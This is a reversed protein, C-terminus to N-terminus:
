KKFNDWKNEKTINTNFFSSEMDHTWCALISLPPKDLKPKPCMSIYFQSQYRSSSPSTVPPVTFSRRVIPLNFTNKVAPGRLDNRNQQTNATGQQGQMRSPFDILREATNHHHNPSPQVSVRFDANYMNYIPPGGPCNRSLHSIGGPSVGNMTTETYPPPGGPPSDKVPATAGILPGELVASTDNPVNSEETNLTWIDDMENAPSAVHNTDTRPTWIDQESEGTDFADSSHQTVTVAPLVIDDSDNTDMRPTWIDEESEGTELADPSHQTVTVAPLVIDDSDHTVTIAPLIIEDPSDENPLVIKPVGPQLNTFRKSLEETDSDAAQMPSYQRCFFSFPM